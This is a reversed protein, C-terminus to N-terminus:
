RINLVDPLNSIIQSVTVLIKIRPLVDEFLSKFFDFITGLLDILGNFSEQLDQVTESESGM